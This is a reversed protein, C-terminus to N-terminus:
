KKRKLAPVYRTLPIAAKIKGEDKQREDATKRKRNTPGKRFREAV